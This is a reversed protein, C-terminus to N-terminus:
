ATYRKLVNKTIKECFWEGESLAYPWETTGACFVEGKGKKMNVVVCSGYRMKALNEPSNDGYVAKTLTKWDGDGRDLAQGHHGHDEEELICPTLALIEVDKPTGDEGTPYPLGYNFTYTVGDSEYGVVPVEGGFIDGYYLDTGKFAWHDNRYVTFGGSSRPISGGVRSYVGRCGNVGFTTAPPWNISKAEFTHTNQKPDKRMPDRDDATYKYCTQENGDESLRIQWIINGGFRAFHGGNEIYRDLTERMPRSWYEDHGCTVVCKYGDLADANFHLDHQTLYDIEYGQEELWRAMLSDYMAWGAAAYTIAYGNSMAYELYDYHVAWNPPVAHKLAHRPAGKPVRVLGRPWPRQTSLVPIFGASRSKELDTFDTVAPNTYSSGGAWNNYANWTSTAAVFAIKATKKAARLIFFAEQEKVKKGDQIRFIVVYGGSKWDSPIKLTHSVPWGCGKTYAKIPTDHKAGVLGEKKYVSVWEAGDRVIEVSYKRGNPNVNVHLNLTEGPAYSQKATYGWVEVEKPDDSPFESWNTTTWSPWQGVSLKDTPQYGQSPVDANATNTAGGIAALAAASAGATKLFDRRAVHSGKYKSNGNKESEDAM